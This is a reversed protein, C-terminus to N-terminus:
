ISSIKYINKYYGNIKDANIGIVDDKVLLDINFKDQDINHLINIIYNEVGGVLPSMGFILIKKKEM